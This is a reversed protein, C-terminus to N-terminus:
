GKPIYTGEGIGNVDVLEKVQTPKVTSLDGYVTGYGGNAIVVDVNNIGCTSSLERAADTADTESIADIKVVILKTTEARSVDQLSLANPSKIDRVGAVVTNSPQALLAETL